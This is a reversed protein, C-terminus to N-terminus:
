ENKERQERIIGKHLARELADEYKKLHEADAEKLEPYREFFYQSLWNFFMHYSIAGLLFAVAAVYYTLM